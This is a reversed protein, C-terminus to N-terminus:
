RTDPNIPSEGKDFDRQNPVRRFSSPMGSAAKSVCTRLVQCILPKLVRRKAGTAIV